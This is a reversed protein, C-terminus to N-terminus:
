GGGALYQSHDPDGKQEKAGACPVPSAPLGTLPIGGPSTPPPASTPQLHLDLHGPYLRYWSETVGDVVIGIVGGVLINGFLWPNVGPRVSAHVPEYGPSDLAIEHPRSRDLNVTVPTAGSPVGDVRVESGPPTSTIKIGQSCM